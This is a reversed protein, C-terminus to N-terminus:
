NYIYIIGIINIDRLCEYYIYSKKERLYKNKPKNILKYFPNIRWFILYNELNVFIIIFFFLFIM